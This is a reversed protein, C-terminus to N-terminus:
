EWPMNGELRNKSKKSSKRGQTALNLAENEGQNESTKNELTWCISKGVRVNTKCHIWVKNEHLKSSQLMQLAIRKILPPSLM